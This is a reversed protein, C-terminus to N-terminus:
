TKKTLMHKDALKYALTYKVKSDVIEMLKEKTYEDEKIKYQKSM